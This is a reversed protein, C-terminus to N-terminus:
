PLAAGLGVQFTVENLDCGSCLWRRYGGELRVGLRQKVLFRFGLAGGAVGSDAGDGLRVWGGNVAVYPAAHESAGLLFGIQMVSSLAVDSAASSYLLGVQPELMMRGAFITAYLTSYPFLFSTPGPLGVLVESNGGSFALVGGVRSGIELKTPQQASAASGCVLTALLVTLSRM